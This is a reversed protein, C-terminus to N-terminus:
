LHHPAGHVDKHCVACRPSRWPFNQSTGSCPAGRWSRDGGQIGTACRWPSMASRRLDGQCPECFFSHLGEFTQDRLSSQGSLEKGQTRVPKQSRGAENVQTSRERGTRPCGRLCSCLAAAHHPLFLSPHPWGHSLTWPGRPYSALRQRVSSRPCLGSKCGHTRGARQWQEGQVQDKFM